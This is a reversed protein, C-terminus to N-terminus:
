EKIIMSNMLIMLTNRIPPSLVSLKLNNVITTPKMRLTKEKLSNYHVGIRIQTHYKEILPVLHVVEVKKGIMKDKNRKAM